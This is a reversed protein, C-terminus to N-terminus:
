YREQTEETTDERKETGRGICILITYDAGFVRSFIILLSGQLHVSAAQLARAGLRNKRSHSKSKGWDAFSCIDHKVALVNDHLSDKPTDVITQLVMGLEHLLILAKLNSV